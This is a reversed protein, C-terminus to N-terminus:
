KLTSCNVKHMDKRTDPSIKIIAGYKTFIKSPSFHIGITVHICISQKKPIVRAIFEDILDKKIPIPFGGKRAM